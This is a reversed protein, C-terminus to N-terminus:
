PQEGTGARYPNGKIPAMVPRGWGVRWGEDWAAEKIQEVSLGGGALLAARDVLAVKDDRMLGVVFAAVASTALPHNADAVWDRVQQETYAPTPVSQLAVLHNAKYGANERVGGVLRAWAEAFSHRNRWEEFEFSFDAGYLAMWIDLQAYRPIPDDQERGAGAPPVAAPEAVAAILRAFAECTDHGTAENPEDDAMGLVHRAWAAQGDESTGTPQEISRTPVPPIGALRDILHVVKRADLRDHGWGVLEGRLAAIVHGAPSTPQPVSRAAALATFAADTKVLLEDAATPWGRIHLLTVVVEVAARAEEILADVDTPNTPTDTM